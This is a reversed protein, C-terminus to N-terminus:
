EGLATPRHLSQRGVHATLPGRTEDQCVGQVCVRRGCGTFCLCVCMTVLVDFFTTVCVCVSMSVCVRRCYHCLRVLRSIYCSCLDCVYKSETYFLVSLSDYLDNMLASCVCVSERERVGVAPGLYFCVLRCQTGGGMRIPLLRNGSNQM